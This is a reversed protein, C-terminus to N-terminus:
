YTLFNIGALIITSTGSELYQMAAEYIDVITNSPMHLTYPGKM